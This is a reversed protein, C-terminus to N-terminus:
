QLLLVVESRVTLGADIWPRGDRLYGTDRILKFV